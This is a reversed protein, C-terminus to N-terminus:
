QGTRNLASKKNVRTVAGEEKEAIIKVRWWSKKGTFNHINNSEMMM